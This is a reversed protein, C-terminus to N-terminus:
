KELAPEKEKPMDKNNKGSNQKSSDPSKKEKGDELYNSLITDMEKLLKKDHDIKLVTYGLTTIPKDMSENKYQSDNPSGIFHLSDGQKYNQLEKATDGWASINVPIDKRGEGTKIYITNNSVHLDDNGKKVIKITSDKALVGAIVNLM